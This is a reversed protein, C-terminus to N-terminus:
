PKADKAPPSAPDPSSSGPNIGLEDGASDKKLRLVARAENVSMIRPEGARGVATRLGTMLTAMDARELDSTDFEAVRAATRFLKRNLEVEFKNLYQRLTYRVFGKGMAEVGAGWSTNKETHGVM